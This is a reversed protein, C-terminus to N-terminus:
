AEKQYSTIYVVNVEVPDKVKGTGHISLSIINPLPLVVVM